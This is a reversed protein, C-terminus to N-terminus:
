NYLSQIHKKLMTLLSVINKSSNSDISEIFKIYDNLRDIKCSGGSCMDHISKIKSDEKSKKIFKVIFGNVLSIIEQIILKSAVQDYYNNVIKDGIKMYLLDIKLQKCVDYYIKAADILTIGTDEVILSIEILDTLVLLVKFQKKMDESLDINNMAVGIDSIMPLNKLIGSEYAAILEKSQTKYKEIIAMTDIDNYKRINWNHLLWYIHKDIMKRLAQLLIMKNNYSIKDISANEIKDWYYCIGAGYKSIAFAKMLNIPDVNTVNIIQHFSYTGMTNIYENVVFTKIINNRLPHKKIYNQHNTQMQTPFYKMLCETFYKDAGFDIDEFVHSMSIKSYAVLVAIEPRTLGIGASRLRSITEDDPLYEIKRDLEAIDELYKILWVHRDFNHLNFFEELSILQTQQKNDNLVLKAIEDTMSFLLTNRDKLTLVGDSMMNQFTIKINVEHDSCDVGASNDIFDTNLKGGKRAYEIRGNQTLGLNGAECIAKAKLENGNVRLNDNAKDGVSEHSEYEAKVYTGIGGNWILDVPTKLIANILEDPALSKIDEKINFLARMQKNITIMKSSREFIGGGESILSTNYDTWQSRPLDFLRKREKFCKKTDEPNPDIFIHVHNFAALLKINEYLIMGNGFVDGSMDGVGIVTFTQKKPDINLKALHQEGCIWVGKSTISMKKHDYGFSGGSAFADGLWFKNKESIDNAYDSFSATGKDAAVVLYPDDGDYCKVDLPKIVKLKVINDTLSLLATLFLKYCAVGEIMFKEKDKNSVSKIVFGGKSGVPVIITNKTMQAKMLGLIETRFDEHRDSWRLGGRAVKGGRLHIGEFRKSYVFIEMFPKPMPMKSIEKSAIKFCFYEKNYKEGTSIQEKIIHDYNTRKTAMILELYIRLVRDRVIDSVDNLNKIIDNYMKIFTKEEFNNSTNFKADFLQTIKKTIATHDLLSEIIAGKNYNFKIQKLYKSYARLVMVEHWSISAYLILANFEDDDFYGNHISELAKEINYKIFNTIDHDINKHDYELRLHHIFVEKTKGGDNISLIYTAMDIVFFGFNEIIRLISSLNLEHEHSYVRLNVINHNSNDNKDTYTDYISTNLNFKIYGDNIAAEMMNIDYVAQEASFNISYHANFAGLYKQIKQEADYTYSDKIALILEDDWESIIATLLKEISNIDYKLNREDNTSVISYMKVFDSDDISIYSKSIIGDFQQCLIKELAMHVKTDFRNKPIFLLCSVFLKSKDNRVFLKLKPILSLTVIDTGTNYLEEESMQFLETIPFLQLATTLEKSNFSDKPQEYKNIINKIKNSIIPIELISQYDVSSTFFGIVSVFGITKNDFTLKKIHFCDMHVNRHVASYSSTKRVFIVQEDEFDNIKTLITDPYIDNKKMIGLRSEPLSIIKGDKTLRSEISGLLIFNNKLTWNLFNIADIDESDLRAAKNNLFYITNEITKRVDQWDKTALVVCELILALRQKLKDLESISNYPLYIHIISENNFVDDLKIGNTDDINSKKIDINKNITSKTSFDKLNCYTTINKLEHNKDRQVTIIPHSIFVSQLGWAKIENNLSDLIFPMDTNIIEIVTFSKNNTNKTNGVVKSNNLKNEKINPNSKNIVKDPNNNCYDKIDIFFKKNLKINNFANEAVSYLINPGINVVDNKSIDKYITEIFSKLKKDKTLNIIADIEKNGINNKLM